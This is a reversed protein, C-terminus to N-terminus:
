NKSSQLGCVGQGMEWQKALGVRARIRPEPVKGLISEEWVRVASEICRGGRKREQKSGRVSSLNGQWSLETQRKENRDIVRNVSPTHQQFSFAVNILIM